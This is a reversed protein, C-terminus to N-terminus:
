IGASYLLAETIANAYLTLDYEDKGVMQHIFEPELIIAPCATARLFYDISGNKKMRYWGEKCGRDRTVFGAYDIEELYKTQFLVAAELGGQSGPCYLTECGATKSTGGANWHLEAALVLGEDSHLRNVEAVAQPLTGDIVHIAPHQIFSCVETSLAHETLGHSVAGQRKVDHGVSLVIKM